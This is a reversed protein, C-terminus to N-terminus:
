YYIRLRDQYSKTLCATSCSRSATAASSCSPVISTPLPVLRLEWYQSLKMPRSSTEDIRAATAANPPATASHLYIFASKAAQIHLGINRAKEVIMDYIGFVVDVSGVITTDDLYSLIDVLIGQQACEQLVENIRDAMGVCLASSEASRRTTSRTGITVVAVVANARGRGCDLAHNSVLLRLGGDEM